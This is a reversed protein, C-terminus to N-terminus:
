KGAEILKNVRAVLEVDSITNFSKGDNTHDIPLIVKGYCRDLLVEAARVDGKLAKVKIAVIINEAESKDIGDTGLVEALLIDLNPLKKPAGKKNINEPHVDFGKGKITHPNGRNM